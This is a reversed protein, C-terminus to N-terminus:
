RSKALGRRRIKLAELLAKQTRRKSRLARMVAEDVTDRALIHHVFIRDAKSGQRRIRRNFQDYLEFDWTPSFWIITRASGRQLNLGHGISAPHGLLIPLNDANWLSELRAADKTSTGGGIYPTGRPLAHLLRELDHKFEYAILTPRGQQEEVLDVLAEIKADHVAEWENVQSVEGTIPDVRGKYVAGNAIQKCKSLAAAASSATLPQGNDLETLLLSEMDDYMKRAPRPLDVWINNNTVPPLELYDDASMHMALDKINDQIAERAGEIPRWNYPGDPVFYRNRYHTIFRGLREGRDLVYVQGFLDELGNSAPSGTLGYRRSFKHLHKKMLKFRQSKSSKMKSLEDFVLTNVGQKVLNDLRKDQVLWKLGEYNIVYIDAPEKVLKDKEKGHLVVVKLDKFDDWEQVESPWVSHAVRLPAVVLTRKVYGKKRLIKLAALTISTKGLGPDLFLAAHPRSILWKVGKKQYDHPKWSKKSRKSPVSFPRLSTSRSAM